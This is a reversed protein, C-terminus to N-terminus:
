FTSNESLKQLICSQGVLIFSHGECQLEVLKSRQHCTNKAFRSDVLHFPTAIGQTACYAADKSAAFPEVANGARCLIILTDMGPRHHELDGTVSALRSAM